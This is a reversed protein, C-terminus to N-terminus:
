TQSAQQLLEGLHLLDTLRREGGNEGLLRAAIQRRTLVHRIMPLVGRRLWLSRYDRFEAIWREWEDEENNLRDLQFASL